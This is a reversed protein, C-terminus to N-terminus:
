INLGVKNLGEFVREVIEEFKIYRGILVRAKGPFDPKLELLKKAFREGVWNKSISDKQTSFVYYV